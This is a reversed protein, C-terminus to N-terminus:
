PQHLAGLVSGLKETQQATPTSLDFLVMKASGIAMTSTMLMPLRAEDDSIWFWMRGKNKAVFNLTPKPEVRLATREGTPRLSLSQRANPKIMVTLTEKGTNIAFSHAQDVALKQSRIYYFASIIDQVPEDLPFSSEQGNIRDQTIAQKAEYDYITVKHKRQRGERRNQEFRRSFLGDTDLWSTTQSDLRYILRGLGRTQAKGELRYCAHGDIEDIGAVELTALGIPMPGWFIRYKLIEGVEFSRPPSPQAALPSATSPALSLILQLVFLVSCRM